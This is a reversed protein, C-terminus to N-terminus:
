IITTVVEIYGNWAAWILPTRGENGQRGPDVQGDSLFTKVVETHGYEAAWILPTRGRHDRQDPDTDQATTLLLTVLNNLGYVGFWTFHM